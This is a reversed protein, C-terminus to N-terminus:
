STKGAGDFRKFGIPAYRPQPPAEADDDATREAMGTFSTFFAAQIAKVIIADIADTTLKDIEDIIAVTAFPPQQDGADDMESRHPYLLVVIQGTITPNFAIQFGKETFEKMAGNDNRFELMLPMDRSRFIISPLQACSGNIEENFAQFTDVFYGAKYTANTNLYEAVKKLYEKLEESKKIWQERRHEVSALGEGYKNAVNLIDQMM